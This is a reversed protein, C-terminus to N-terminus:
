AVPTPTPAAGNFDPFRAKWKEIYGTCDYNDPHLLAAV